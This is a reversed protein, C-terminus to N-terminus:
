HTKGQSTRRTALHSASNGLGRELAQHMMTRLREPKAPAREFEIWASVLRGMQDQRLVNFSAQHRYRNLDFGQRTITLCGACDILGGTEGAHVFRMESGMKGSTKMWVEIAEWLTQKEGATFLNHVFYVNVTSESPWLAAASMDEFNLPCVEMQEARVGNALLAWSAVIAVLLLSFMKM